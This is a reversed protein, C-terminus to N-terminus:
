YHNDHGFRYRLDIGDSSRNADMPIIYVFETSHLYWLLDRYSVNKLPKSDRVLSCMWEFYESNIDQTM